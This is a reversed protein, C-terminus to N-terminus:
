IYCTVVRVCVITYVMVHVATCVVMSLAVVHVTADLVVVSLAAVHVVTCVSMSYFVLSRIFSLSCNNSVSACSHVAEAIYTQICAEVLAHIATQVLSYIM